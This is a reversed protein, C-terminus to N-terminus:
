SKTFSSELNGFLFKHAPKQLIGSVQQIGGFARDPITIRGRMECNEKTALATNTHNGVGVPREVGQLVFVARRHRVADGLFVLFDPHVPTFALSRAADFSGVM